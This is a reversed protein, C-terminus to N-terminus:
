KADSLPHRAILIDCPLHDLVQEATSGIFRRKFGARALVGMIVVDAQQGRAFAPLVERARGPLLHIREPDIAYKSGLSDLHRLHLDHWRKEIDQLPIKKPNFQLKTYASIADLEQYTHLLHLAGDCKDALSKGLEVIAQDLKGEEDHEHLPDVAALLVPPSQWAHPKVLWLPYDLNRMLQWDTFTFTAREAPSHYSTGKVVFAADIEKAREVIADSAPRDHLVNSTIKLGQEALSVELENLEQLQAERVTEEIHKSEASVMFTKRLFGLTPDSLALELDCGYMQAIWAARNAVEQPFRDTEIVALVTNSM